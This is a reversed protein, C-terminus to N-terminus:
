FLGAVKPAAVTRRRRRSTAKRVLKPAGKTGVQALMGSWRRRSSPSSWRRRSSPQSSSGGELKKKCALVTKKLANNEKKLKKIQATFEARSKPMAETTTTTTTTTTSTTTTTMRRTTAVAANTTTHHLGYYYSIMLGDKGKPKPTTARTQPSPRDGNPAPTTRSPASTPQPTTRLTTAKKAPSKETDYYYPGVGEGDKVLHEKAASEEKQNDIIKQIVGSPLGKLAPQDKEVEASYFVMNCTGEKIKFAGGDGWSKGWSNLCYFYKVGGEVGFGTCTVAHAGRKRTFRPAYIGSKYGFFCSMVDFSMAIPGKSAIERKAQAASRHTKHGSKTRFRDEGLGRPYGSACKSPCAPAKRSSDFHSLSGTATFYPSCGVGAKYNGGTPLGERRAMAYGAAPVGGRCGDLPRGPPGNCSALFGASIWGDFKGDTEICLRGDMAGAASHAWCSGCKGQDRIHNFSEKCKPWKDESRFTAPLKWGDAEVEALSLGDEIESKDMGSRKWKVGLLMDFDRMSMKAVEPTKEAVWGLKESNLEEVEKKTVAPREEKIVKIVDKAWKKSRVEKPTKSDTLGQAKANKEVAEKFRDEFSALEEGTLKEKMGGLKEYKQFADKVNAGLGENENFEPKFVGGELIMYTGEELDLEERAVALPVLVLLWVYIGAARAM